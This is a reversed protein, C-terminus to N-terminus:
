PCKLRHPFTGRRFIHTVPRHSILPRKFPSLSLSRSLFLSLISSNSWDPLPPRIGKQFRSFQETNCRRVVSDTMTVCEEGDTRIRGFMNGEDSDTFDYIEISRRKRGSRIAGRSGV